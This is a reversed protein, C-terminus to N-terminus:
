NASGSSGEASSGQPPPAGDDPKPRKPRPPRTLVTIKNMFGAEDRAILLPLSQAVADVLKGVWEQDAKSFDQLVHGHVLERDGPHGVGLRVRWYGQGIHDDISRLGNHGAAGGGFKVKVRGAALDIEDHIVVVHEPEIKHYRMAKGVSRGSDNMYTLPKLALVRQDDIKGEAVLGDFRSKFPAFRHRHVIEDVAMFGINHRNRAYDPGPNGLGVVLLM